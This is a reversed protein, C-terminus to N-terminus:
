LATFAATFERAERISPLLNRRGYGKGSHQYALYKPKAPRDTRELRLVEHYETTFERTADYKIGRVTIQM